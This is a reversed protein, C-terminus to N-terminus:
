VSTGGGLLHGLIRRSADGGGYVPEVRELPTQAWDMATRLEQPDAGALRVADLEVLEVWETNDRAVVCKKGLFYAEKQLGGSDTIVWECERLAAMMELYSLPEVAAVSQPLAQQLGSLVKKTRPHVPFVVPHPADALADLIGQLKTADDTNGARHLTMLIFPRPYPCTGARGSYFRVADFMVDGTLHVGKRIGESALNEVSVRSPCFLLNSVHDTLVRNVEEPMSRDFSRLGAEVHALPLRLKAAALAGALTSNTDGYVLTWDPKQAALVPEIAMLMRGTMEGQGGGGIGLNAKPAPIDLEEFFVQSMNADYHQGTHVLFEEIPSEPCTRNHERIARNLSAAKIFQPRAGVITVIRLAM